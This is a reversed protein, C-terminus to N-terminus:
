DLGARVAEADPSLGQELQLSMLLAATGTV